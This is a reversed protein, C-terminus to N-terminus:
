LRRLEEVAREILELALNYEKNRYAIEAKRSLEVVLSVDKGEANKEQIMRKFVDVKQRYEKEPSYTLLYFTSILLVFILTGALISLTLTRKSVKKGGILYDVDEHELIAEMDEKGPEKIGLEKLIDEREMGSIIEETKYLK